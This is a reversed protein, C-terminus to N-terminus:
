MKQTKHPQSLIRKASTTKGFCEAERIASFCRKLTLKLGAQCNYESVVRINSNLDTFNKAAIGVDDVKEKAPAPRCNCFPWLRQAHIKFFCFCVISAKQLDETPLVDVPFVFVLMHASRAMKLM